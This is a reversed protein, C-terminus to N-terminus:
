TWYQIWSLIVGTFTNIKKIKKNNVNNINIISHDNFLKHFYFILKNKKIM